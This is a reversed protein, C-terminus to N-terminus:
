LSTMKLDYPPLDSFSSFRTDNLHIDKLIELNKTIGAEFLAEIVQIIEENNKKFLRTATPSIGFITAQFDSLMKWIRESNPYDLAGDYIVSSAGM